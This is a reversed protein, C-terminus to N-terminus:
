LLENLYKYIEVMALTDLECYELLKQRTQKINEDFNPDLVMRGWTDLAMSGDQIDLDQYSFRPCLVPLVKKISTSGHFRYDVYDEKFVDMLDFMHENIYSLYSEFKPLWKIMDKNRGVEFSANWSIFTGKLDTFAKMKQLMDRPYDMAEGLWEFHTLKGTESLTHISVQFVLHNYPSIGDIMPVASSYTEYDIFHLPFHLGSLIAQIDTKNIVPARELVSKRQAEQQVNLEYGRPIDDIALIDQDVLERIKKKRIRVLEYIPYEPIGSNFYNFSDCHNSRTKYKCSCKNEDIESDIFKLAQQVEHVVSLYIREIEETVDVEKFLDNSVIEGDRIYEKNLHLISAKSISYGCEQLVYKQFCIDKLHNHKKDKKISTSSKIEYIHFSGDDLKELVDIRAFIGDTTQFSAQFFVDKETELQASTYGPTASEPLNVGEPFLDKAYAEVEYGEKILKKLFLSFDGEPYSSPSNKQLWLSEPCNLYQIYDTKTFKKMM